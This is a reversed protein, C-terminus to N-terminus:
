RRKKLRFGVFGAVTLVMLPALSPEPIVYGDGGGGAVVGIPILGLWPLVSGGGGAVAPLFALQALGAVEEEVVQPLLPALAIETEPPTPPSTFPEQPPEIVRVVEEVKPEEPKVIEKPAESAQTEPPTAVPPLGKIFPNACGHRMFPTGERLTFVPEGKTFKKTKGYFGARPSYGWVTLTATEPFAGVTVNKEFYDLVTKESTGFFKAFRALAAPDRNLEAILGPVDYVEYEVFADPGAKKQALAPTTFILAALCILVVMISGYAVTSKTPERLM